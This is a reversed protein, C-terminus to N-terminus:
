GLLTEGKNLRYPRDQQAPRLGMLPMACLARPLDTLAHIGIAGRAGAKMQRMKQRRQGLRRARVPPRLLRMINQDVGHCDHLASALPIQLRLEM